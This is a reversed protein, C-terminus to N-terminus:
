RINMELMVGLMLREIETGPARTRYRKNVDHDRFVTEFPTLTKPGQLTM